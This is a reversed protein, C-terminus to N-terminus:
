NSSKQEHTYTNIINTIENLYESLGISTKHLITEHFLSAKHYVKSTMTKTDLEAKFDDVEFTILNNKAKTKWNKGNYLEDFTLNTLAALKSLQTTDLNSKGQIVRDLAMMPHKHTPFLDLALDSKSISLDEIIRGLEITRM